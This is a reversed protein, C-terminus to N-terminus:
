CHHVINNVVTLVKHAARCKQMKNGDTRARVTSPGAQGRLTRIGLFHLRIALIYTTIALTICCEHPSLVRSLHDM